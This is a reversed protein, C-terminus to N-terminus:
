LEEKIPLVRLVGIGLHQLPDMGPESDYVMLQGKERTTWTLRRNGGDGDTQMGVRYAMDLLGNETSKIMREALAPSDLVIGM